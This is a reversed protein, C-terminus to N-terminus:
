NLEEIIAKAIRAGSSEETLNFTDNFLAKQLAAYQKSWIPAQEILSKLDKLSDIVKGTKWHLYNPNNGWDAQHANIFIAPRPKMLYEYIQSSVDGLYIDSTMIYTMDVCSISGLDIHINPADFYKKEISKYNEFGKKNFLNIHPAFILNYKNHKHFFDLVQHGFKYWSSLEKNFHPTYLVTKNSNNFKTKINSAKNTLDFKPYGCLKIKFDEDEFEVMLREAKKRGAVLILDYLKHAEQYGYARDGSGHAVHILKPHSSKGRAESIINATHDTFVLADFSLFVDSHKKYIYYPSPLRRKTIGEIIRRPITTSLKRIKLKQAGLQDILRRLYDHDAEYTIIEVEFEENKSLEYAPTIFHHIHHLEDLYIFGVKKKGM